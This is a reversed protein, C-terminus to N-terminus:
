RVRLFLYWLGDALLTTSLTPWHRVKAARGTDQKSRECARHRTGELQTGLGRRSKTNPRSFVAGSSNPASPIGISEQAQKRGAGQRMPQWSSVRYNDWALGPLYRTRVLSDTSRISKTASQGRLRISLCPIGSNHGYRANPAAAFLLARRLFRHGKWPRSCGSLRLVLEDELKEQLFPLWSKM